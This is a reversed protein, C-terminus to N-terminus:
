ITQHIDKNKEGYNSAGFTYFQVKHAITPDPDPQHSMTLSKSLSPRTTKHSPIKITQPRSCPDQNITHTWASFMLRITMPSTVM